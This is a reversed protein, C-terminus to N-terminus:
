PHSMISYRALHELNFTEALTNEPNYAGKAPEATFGGFTVTLRKLQNM